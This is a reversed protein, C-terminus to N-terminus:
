VKSLDMISKHHVFPAVSYTKSRASRITERKEWISMEDVWWSRLMIMVVSLMTLYICM